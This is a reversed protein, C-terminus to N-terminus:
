CNQPVNIVRVLFVVIGVHHGLTHCFAWVMTNQPITQLSSPGVSLKNHVIVLLHVRVVDKHVSLLQIILCRSCRSGCSHWGRFFSLHEQTAARGKTKSKICASFQCTLM